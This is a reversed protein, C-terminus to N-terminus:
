LLEVKLFLMNFVNCRYYRIFLIFFIININANTVNIGNELANANVQGYGYVNVETVPIRNADPAHGDPVVVISINSVVSIVSHVSSPEEM